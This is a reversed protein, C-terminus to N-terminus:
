WWLLCVEGFEVGPEVQGSDFETREGLSERVGGYSRSLICWGSPARCPVEIDCAVGYLLVSMVGMRCREDLGHWGKLFPLM